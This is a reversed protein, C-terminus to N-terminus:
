MQTQNEAKCTLEDIGNQLNWMYTNIHLIQTKEKQRVESKIVTELDMWTEAFSIIKNSKKASYWEALTHEFEKSSPKLLIHVSFKWIYLSSKSFASSGSVLNGIDAPDYCFCSFELFFRM